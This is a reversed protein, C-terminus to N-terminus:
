HCFPSNGKTVLRRLDSLNKEDALNIAVQRNEKELVLSEKEREKERRGEGERVM